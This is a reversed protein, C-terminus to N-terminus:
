LHKTEHLKLSLVEECEECVQKLKELNMTILEADSASSTPLALEAAAVLKAGHNSFKSLEQLQSAMKQKEEPSVGQASCTPLLPCLVM